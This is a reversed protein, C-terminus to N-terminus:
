SDKSQENSVTAIEVEDNILTEKLEVTQNNSTMKLMERLAEIEQRQANSQRELDQLREDLKQGQQVCMDQANSVRLSVVNISDRTMRYAIFLVIPVILTLGFLSEM